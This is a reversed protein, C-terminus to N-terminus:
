PRQSNFTRHKTWPKLRHLRRQMGKLIEPGGGARWDWYEHVELTNDEQKDFISWDHLYFLRQSLLMSTFSGSLGVLRGVSQHSLGPWLYTEIGILLINDINSTKITKSKEKTQIKNYKTTQTSYFCFWVQLYHESLLFFIIVM